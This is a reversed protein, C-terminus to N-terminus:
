ETVPRRVKMFLVYATGGIAGGVAGCAIDILNWRLTENSGTFHQALEIGASLAAVSLIAKLIGYRSSLLPSIALGAVAFALISLLKRAVVPHAFYAPSTLTEVDSNLAAIFVLMFVALAVFAKM